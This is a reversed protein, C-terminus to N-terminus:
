RVNTITFSNLITTYVSKWTASDQQRYSMTLQHIRDNNHFQYMSVIVYPNENLQRLYSIKLATRGNVNVIQVGYWSILKLGTGSFSQETQLKLQASLDRLEEQTASLKTSLKEFDGYNGITTELIVRAYSAFGASDGSNLGKQQFVIRNDSIEFGFKKGQQKQYEEALKKYNGSQLEMNSPISIYGINKLLYNESSTQAFAFVTAFVAVTTFIKKM